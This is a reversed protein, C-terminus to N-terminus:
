SPRPEPPWAWSPSSRRSTTAWLRPPCASGTPLRRMGPEPPSRTSCRGSGRPSNRSSRGRPEASVRGLVRAAVAQTFIVDGRAVARIAREIEDQEAGKLLYGRAGARLADAVLADEDFMTLVLVAVDPYDRTIQQTAAVGDLVPMRLDMIVVDPRTLAVEKVIEAGTGAQGVVTVGDLTGLLASLGRRVVPHDDALLVRIPAADPDMSRDDRSKGARRQPRRGIRGPIDGPGAVPHPTRGEDAACQFKASYHDDAGGRLLWRGFSLRMDVVVLGPVVVV